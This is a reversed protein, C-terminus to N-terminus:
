TMTGDLSLKNLLLAFRTVRKKKDKEKREQMLTVLNM